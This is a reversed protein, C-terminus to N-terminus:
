LSFYYEISSDKCAIEDSGRSPKSRRRRAQAECPAKVSTTVLVSTQGRTYFYAIIVNEKVLYSHLFNKDHKLIIGILSFSSINSNQAFIQKWSRAPLEFGFETVDM